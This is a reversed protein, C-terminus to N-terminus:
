EHGEPGVDADLEVFEPPVSDALWVSQNGVLFEVGADHAELARVALVVPEAAKRAGVQQATALDVSLHVYQRDMPLLGENRIRPWAEPSTGHFLTRPPTARRLTLRGPLSHGYLARIRDGEIEHRQKEATAVMAALDDRTLDVWDRRTRRLSQLLQDIPTWGEDDLELEYLWPEHRLAHSVARSLQRLDITM